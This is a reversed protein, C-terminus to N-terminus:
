SVMVKLILFFAIIIFIPYFVLFNVSAEAIMNVLEETDTNEKMQQRSISANKKINSLRKRKKTYVSRREFAKKGSVKPKIHAESRLRNSFTPETDFYAELFNPQDEPEEPVSKTEDALMYEIPIAQQKAVYNADNIFELSYSAKHILTLRNKSPEFKTGYFTRNKLLIEALDLTLGSSYTLTCREFDKLNTLKGKRKKSVVLNIAEDHVDIGLVDKGLFKRFLLLVSVRLSRLFFDVNSCFSISVCVSDFGEKNACLSAFFEDGNSPINEVLYILAGLKKIVNFLGKIEYIRSAVPDYKWYQQKVNAFCLELFKEVDSVELLKKVECTGWEFEMEFPM